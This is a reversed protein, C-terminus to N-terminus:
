TEAKPSKVLGVILPVYLAFWIMAFVLWSGFFAVIYGVGLLATIVAIWGAARGDKAIAKGQVKFVGFLALLMPMAILAAAYSMGPSNSERVVFWVLFGLSALSAIAFGLRAM